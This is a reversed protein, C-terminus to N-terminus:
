FPLECLQTVGRTLVAGCRDCYGTSKADCCYRVAPPSLTEVLMAKGREVLPKEHEVHWAEVLILYRRLDGLTDENDAHIASAGNKMFEAVRDAKRALMMFAGQGGRKCWSGGYIADKERLQECDAHTTAGEQEYLIIIMSQINTRLSRGLSGEETQSTSRLHESLIDYGLLKADRELYEWIGMARALFPQVFGYRKAVEDIHAIYTM